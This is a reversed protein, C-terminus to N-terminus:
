SLILLPVWVAVGTGLLAAGIVGWCWLDDDKEDRKMGSVVLGERIWNWCVHLASSAQCLPVLGSAGANSPM